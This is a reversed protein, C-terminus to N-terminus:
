KLVFTSISRRLDPKLFTKVLYYFRLREVTGVTWFCSANILIHIYEMDHWGLHPPKMSIHHHALLGGLKKWRLTSHVGECASFFPFLCWLSIFYVSSELFLLWRGLIRDKGAQLPTSWRIGLEDKVYLCFRLLLSRRHMSTLMGCPIHSLISGCVQGCSDDLFPWITLQIFSSASTPM